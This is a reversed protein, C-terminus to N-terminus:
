SITSKEHLIFNVWNGLVNEVTYLESEERTLQKVFDARNSPEAGPGFNQYEAYYVTNHSDTKGWDHFGAPHIHEDIESNLRIKM